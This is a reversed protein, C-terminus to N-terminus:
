SHAHFERVKMEFTIGELISVRTELIRIIKAQLEDRRMMCSIFRANKLLVNDSMLAYFDFIRQTRDSNNVVPMMHLLHANIDAERLAWRTVNEVPYSM